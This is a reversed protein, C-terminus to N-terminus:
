RRRRSARWSARLRGASPGARNRWSPTRAATPLGKLALSEGAALGAAYAAPSRAACRAQASALSATPAPPLRQHVAVAVNISHPLLSTLQLDPYSAPPPQFAVFYHDWILLSLPLLHLALALALPPCRRLFFPCRQNSRSSLRDHNSAATVATRPLTLVGLYKGGPRISASYVPVSSVLSWDPPPQGGHTCCCCYSRSTRM